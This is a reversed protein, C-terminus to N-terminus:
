PSGDDHADARGGAPELGERAEELGQGDVGAHREHEHLMEIRLVEAQQTLQEGAPRRHGHV